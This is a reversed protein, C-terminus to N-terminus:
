LFAIWINKNEWTCWQRKGQGPPTIYTTRVNSLVVGDKIIGIGLKNASGEFGIAITMTFYDFVASVFYLFDNHLKREFRRWRAKNRYGLRGGSKHLSIPSFQPLPAVWFLPTSPTTLPKAPPLVKAANLNTTFFSRKTGIKNCYWYKVDNNQKPKSHWILFPCFHNVFRLKYM